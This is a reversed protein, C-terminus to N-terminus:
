TRDGVLVFGSWFFPHEYPRYGYEDTYDRLWQKAEQLAEAKSMPEGVMEHRMDEYRGRWNEYFRRMLLSTSEDEVSWLSLLLSRAGAQFLAHSFGIFGEGYVARGLGTECASLTVLDANIEWERLIERATLLGDYIRDGAVASQVADPLNVQSLVLASREPHEADILAHTAFHITGFSALEGLSALRVMEQETAEPGVLVTSRTAVEAVAAVEDRTARLRPLAGLAEDNGALASRLEEPGLRSDAAALQVGDSQMEALQSQCHPPDGLLLMTGSPVDGEKGSLWAYTTASPAYSVAFREGLLMGESDVFAEVPLGLMAGAPLVILEKAGELAGLVPEIREEWLRRMDTELVDSSTQPDAMRERLLRIRLFPGETSSADGSSTLNKWTVQGTDRIVYCWSQFTEEDVLLDLWGIIAVDEGLVSQVEEISLARGGVAPYEEAIERRFAGWDAQAELLASRASEVRTLNEATPQAGYAAAHASLQRERGGLIGLLSDERAAEEHPLLSAADDALLDALSRALAGEVAAWAEQTKGLALRATALLWLPSPEFGAIELGEGAQGRAAEHVSAARVLLTEAEAYRGQDHLLGALNSLCNVVGPHSDGLLGRAAPLAARYLSEAEAYNGMVQISYALSSMGIITDPHGDGLVKRRVALAQRLLRAAEERDGFDFALSALNNLSLAVDPHEDGFCSRQIRLAELLLAIANELDGRDSLVSALSNLSMAVAPHEAGLVEM